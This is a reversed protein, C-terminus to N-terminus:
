PEEHNGLRNGAVFSQQQSDRTDGLARNDEQKVPEKRLLVVLSAGGVVLVGGLAGVMRPLQTASEPSGSPAIAYQFTFAAWATFAALTALLAFLHRTQLPPM